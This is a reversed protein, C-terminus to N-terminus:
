RTAPAQVPFAARRRQDLSDAVASYQGFRGVGRLAEIEQRAEQDRGMFVLLKIIAIRYQPEAPNRLSADRWLSLAVDPRNMVNLMYNGVVNEIEAHPGHSLAANFTAMMDDVPFDCRRVIACNALGQLASQEQVGIPHETLYAQMHLWWARQLPMGLQSALMLAAQDALVGSQPLSRVRDFTGFAAIALPDGARLGRFNALAAGLSYVARPSTPHKGAESVAFSVPNRWEWARLMTGAACALVFVVALGAGLQRLSRNSPALILLDALAVCIAFTSFYNRHDFVLELPIISSTLVHASLFWLMGLATLPRRRRLALASAAFAALFVLAWLTSPPSLLSRSVVYDDHYLSLSQISPYVTWSLYDVLVRGETLLREGLDFNRGPFPNPGLVPPLLWALALLAPLFLGLGYMLRLRFRGGPIASEFRFVCLELCFGYLPLLAATEKSLSGLAACGFLGGLVHGWGSQGAIMRQRGRIYLALGLFVFVVALSEMRQVVYLVAMLNLPHLAWAFAIFLSAWDRRRLASAGGPRLVVDLLRHALLFALLGNAAHIAINTLKMPVPDLGTFYHNVALTLMALPRPLNSAPSSFTAAIWDSLRLSRVHLATNLAINPVDDFIFGGHLGPWYVLVTLAVLSALLCRL